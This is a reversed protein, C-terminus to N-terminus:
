EPSPVYTDPPEPGACNVIAGAADTVVSVDEGFGTAVPPLKSRLTRTSFASVAMVGNPDM